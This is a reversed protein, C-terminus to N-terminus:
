CAFGTMSDFCESSLSLSTRFFGTKDELMLDFYAKKWLGCELALRNNTIQLQATHVRLKEFEIIPWNEEQIEDEGASGLSPLSTANSREIPTEFTTPLCCASAPSMNNATAAIRPYNRKELRGSTVRSGSSALPLWKDGELDAGKCTRKHSKLNDYRAVQKGCSPCRFGRVNHRDRMHDGYSRRNSFRELCEGCKYLNSSNRSKLRLGPSPIELPTHFNALAENPTAVFPHTDPAPTQTDPVPTQTDPVPTQPEPSSSASDFPLLFTPSFYNGGATLDPNLTGYTLGINKHSNVVLSTDGSSLGSSEM